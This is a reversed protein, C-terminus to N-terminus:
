RWLYREDYEVGHKKLLALLEDQFGTRRHHSKQNRIYRRVAEVRSESVTFAAYGDQWGFKRVRMKTENLWKSSNGKLHQLIESVARSPKLKALLHVHDPMGNVELLSGGEGRVIGGMYCYLEEEIDPAIWPHRNKTSFVLHYLLNAYTGAM